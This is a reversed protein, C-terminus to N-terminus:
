PSSVTKTFTLSEARTWVRQGLRMQRVLCRLVSRGFDRPCRFEDTKLQQSEGQNTCRPGQRCMEQLSSGLPRKARCRPVAKTRHMSRVTGMAPHRQVKGAVRQGPVSTGQPSLAPLLTRCPSCRLLPFAIVRPGTCALHCPM